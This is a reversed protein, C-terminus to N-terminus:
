TPAARDPLGRRRDRGLGARRALVVARHVPGHSRGAGHEVSVNKQESMRNVRYQSDLLYVWHYDTLQTRKLAIYILKLSRYRLKSAHESVAAPLAPSIMNVLAPLPLTSLM